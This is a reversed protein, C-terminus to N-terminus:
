RGRGPWTCTGRRRGSRSGASPAPLKRSTEGAIGAGRGPRSCCGPRCRGASPPCCRSWRGPWSGGAPGTGAQATPGVSCCQPVAVSRCQEQDGLVAPPHPAPALSVGGMGEGVKGEPVAGAGADPLPEGPQLELYLPLPDYLLLLVQVNLLHQCCLQHLAVSQLVASGGYLHSAGTYSEGIIVLFINLKEVIEILGTQTFTLVLNTETGSRGTM